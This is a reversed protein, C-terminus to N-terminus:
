NVSRRGEFLDRDAQLAEAVFATFRQVRAVRHVDPHTLVWLDPSEDILPEPLVRRLAPDRDALYCPLASIGRGSRVLARMALLSDARHKIRAKPFPATILMRNYSEDQWGVWDSEEPSSPECDRAAYVAFAAKAPRRGIYTEPPTKTFRIAVDAERRSLSLPTFTSVLTLDIGPHDALFRGILPALYDGVLAETCTVTLGGALRQDRGFLQRDIESLDAEVREAIELIGLGATSPEYGLKTREFLQAGLSAEMGALRRSVTPQSVRLAAAAGTLSGARAIALFYRVDDWNM